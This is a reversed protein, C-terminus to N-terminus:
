LLTLENVNHVRHSAIILPNRVLAEQHEIFQVLADIEVFDVNRIWKSKRFDRTKEEVDLVLETVPGKLVEYVVELSPNSVRHLFFQLFKFFTLESKDKRQGSEGVDTELRHRRRNLSKREVVESQDDFLRAFILEVFQLLRNLIM